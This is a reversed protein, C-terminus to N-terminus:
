PGKEVPYGKEIWDAVFSTPLILVRLHTFGMDHLASFAPRLNPCRELPCCGCYIVINADKPLSAAFLKLEAIGEEKSGPGRFVAGPIHAGQYLARVGVYIIKLSPDKKQLEKAFDSPSITQDQSWPDNQAAFIHTVSAAFLTIAALMSFARSLPGRSNMSLHYRALELVVVQV